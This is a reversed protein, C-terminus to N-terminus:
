RVELTDGAFTIDLPKITVQKPGAEVHGAAWSQFGAATAARQVKAVDTQPVYVAFGAGMNFYGYMDTLTSAAHQQIFDFVIPRPPVTELVYSFPRPARMLKRWGHGTINVMYHIDVGAEFWAQVLQAYLHSPRLLEEGYMIGSALKTGYGEPLQGAISRALSLGNAHIGNSEILVIADGATLKDGLVLREKPDIIGVCSGSLDIAEPQIIGSLGPTEGGGWTAGSARCAAAWGTILDHAREADTLWASDGVGFYANVVLPKAGVVVVDNVIMAVTDQALQDYYTKGTLKRTADAVLNKTGLGEVVLAHYAEQSEWVFASEGRSAPVEAMGASELEPATKAAEQQALRKVTDLETYNVGTEAYSTKKM